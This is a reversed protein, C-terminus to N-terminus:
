WLIELSTMSCSRVRYKPGHQAEVSGLISIKPLPGVSPGPGRWFRPRAGESRAGRGKGGREGRVGGGCCPGGLVRGTSVMNWSRAFYTYLIWGNQLTRTDCCFLCVACTIRFGEFSLSMWLSEHSDYFSSINEREVVWHNGRVLVLIEYFKRYNACLIMHGQMVCWLDSLVSCRSKWQQKMILESNSLTPNYITIQPCM